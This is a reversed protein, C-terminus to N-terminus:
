KKEELFKAFRDALIRTYDVAGRPDLHHVDFRHEYNYLEPYKEPDDFAFVTVGPPPWDTFRERGYFGSAVVFIPEAGAARIEKTVSDLSDRLLPPIPKPQITKLRVLENNFADIDKQSLQRIPGAEWGDDEVPDAKKERELKMAVQFRQSGSGANLSRQTWLLLHTLSQDLRESLPRPVDPSAMVHQLAIWTHQWDHWYMGRLSTENGELFPKIQMLDILVWKLKKPHLDLIQRIMYLSEPPWMGDQGFNFSNEKHGRKALAQDFQGPIFEHFVRSSGIYILSYKDLHDQMHLYKRWLNSVRPFPVFQSLVVCTLVLGVLFAALNRFIRFPSM